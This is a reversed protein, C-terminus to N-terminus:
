TARTRTPFPPHPSYYAERHTDAFCLDIIETPLNAFILLSISCHSYFFRERRVFPLPLGNSQQPPHNTPQNTRQFENKPVQGPSRGTKRVCRPPSGTHAFGSLYRFIPLTSSTSFGLFAMSFRFPTFGDCVVPLHFLVASHSLM